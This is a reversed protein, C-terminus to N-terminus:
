ATKVIENRNQEIKGDEFYERMNILNVHPGGARPM